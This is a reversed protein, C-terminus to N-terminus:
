AHVHEVEQFYQTYIEDLSPADVDLALLNGGAQIAARAADITM